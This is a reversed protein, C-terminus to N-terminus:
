KKEQSAQQESLEEDIVKLNGEYLSKQAFKQSEQLTSKYLDVIEHLTEQTKPMTLRGIKEIDGNESEFDDKYEEELNSDDDDRTEIGEFIHDDSQTKDEIRMFENPKQPIPSM